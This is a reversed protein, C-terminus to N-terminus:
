LVNHKSPNADENAEESQQVAQPRTRKVVSLGCADYGEKPSAFM